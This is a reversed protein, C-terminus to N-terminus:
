PAHLSPVPHLFKTIHQVRAKLSQIENAYDGSQLSAMFSSLKTDGPPLGNQVRQALIVIDHLIAAILRMGDECIGRTTMAPTGLRIGGPNVASTDGYVSNKNVSIDCLECIKEMRAGSLGTTSKVDWLVLHNDTGGTVVNYGYKKLEEALVKANKLVQDIYDKFSPDMAEKLAVAVAAIQHNHPGGQLSPFVASNISEELSKKCFILGSRPGRLSKHTTSTVVDCYEFPNNCRGGAAVIGSIHAMDAMLYAGVSDAIERMLRYDWDRPYASGGAILLRPKFLQALTRMEDYDILGTHKNVRYPM